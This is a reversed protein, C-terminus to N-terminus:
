FVQGPDVPDPGATDLTIKWSGRDTGQEDHCSYQGSMTTGDLTGTLGCLHGDPYSVRATIRRGDVSGNFSAGPSHCARAGGRAISVAECAADAARM